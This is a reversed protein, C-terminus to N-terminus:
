SGGKTGGVWRCENEFMWLRELVCGACVVDMKMMNRLGLVAFNLGMFVLHSMNLLDSFVKDVYSLTM